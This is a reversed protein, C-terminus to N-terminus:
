GVQNCILNAANLLTQQSLHAYRQTTAVQTHGLIQQVIYLSVGANILFSASSHRIDHLRVDKLGARTRATNWSRYITGFPKGTRPNPFLYFSKSKRPIEKLLEIMGDSLPVHRTKGSKTEPITWIKKELDFDEWRAKLAESRRAGTLLLMPIIYKLLPNESKNIQEKLKQVEEHSLYRERKNNEELLRVGTTPNKDVGPAEWQLALNYMYRIIIIPRNASSPKLGKELLKTHLAIVDQKSITDMYKKGLYPLIHNRLMGEDTEYSRKYTKIYPIYLESAFKELSPANKIRQKAERPDNGLAIDGRVKEALARVKEVSLDKADALKYQVTKGRASQYRLYYTKTGSPRIELMLGKVQTDTYTTKSKTQPCTSNRVFENTLTATAM